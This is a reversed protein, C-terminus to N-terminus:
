IIKDILLQIVSFSYLVTGTNTPLWFTLIEDVSYVPSVLFDLDSVLDSHRSNRFGTCQSSLEGLIVAGTMTM